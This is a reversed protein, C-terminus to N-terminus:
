QPPGDHRSAGTHIQADGEIQEFYDRGTIIVQECGSILQPQPNSSLHGFIAM